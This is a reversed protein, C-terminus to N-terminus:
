RSARDQEAGYDLPETLPKDDMYPAGNRWTLRGKAFWRVTAPYIRHEYTLVRRALSEPTDEATVPIRAQVIAPGGDLEETVFHVTAGHECDGAELAKQHTNLGRHRPLLSPHINILRGQYHQVFEATLIRMFGALVILDPRYADIRAMMARDFAERSDYQRHDVVDTAIHAQEARALGGAGQKNSLVAVLEVPSDATTFQDILAQLNTGTGSLLVVVRLSQASGM